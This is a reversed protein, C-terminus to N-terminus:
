ANCKMGVGHQSIFSLNQKAVICWMKYSSIFINAICGSGGVVWPVQWWKYSILVLAILSIELRWRRNNQALFHVLTSSTFKDMGQHLFKLLHCFLLRWLENLRGGIHTKHQFSSCQQKSFLSTITFKQGLKLIQLNTIFLQVKMWLYRRLLVNIYVKWKKSGFVEQGELYPIRNTFSSGSTYKTVVMAM